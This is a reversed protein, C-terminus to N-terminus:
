AYFVVLCLSCLSCPNTMAFKYITMQGNGFQGIVFSLDEIVFPQNEEHGRHRRPSYFISETSSARSRMALCQEGSGGRVTGSASARPRLSASSMALSMLEGGCSLAM